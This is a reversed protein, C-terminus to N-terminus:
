RLGIHRPSSPAAHVRRLTTGYGTSSSPRRDERRTREPQSRSLRGFWTRSSLLVAHPGYIVVGVTLDPLAADLPQRLANPIPQAVQGAGRLLAQKREAHADPEANQM